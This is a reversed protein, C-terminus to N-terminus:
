KNKRREREAERAQKEREEQERLRQAAQEKAEALATSFGEDQFENDENWVGERTVLTLIALPKEYGTAAVWAALARPPILGARAVFSEGRAINYTDGEFLKEVGALTVATHVNASMGTTAEIGLAKKWKEVGTPSLGGVKTALQMAQEVNLTPEDGEGWLGDMRLLAQNLAGRNLNEDTAKKVAESWAKALRQQDEKSVANMGKTRKSIKAREMQLRRQAERAQEAQVQRQAADMPPKPAGPATGPAGPTAPKADPLAAGADSPPTPSPAKPAAPANAGPGAPAPTVPAAPKPAAPAAPGKEWSVVDEKAVRITGYKLVIAVKEGEEHADGTLTRGDKLKLTDAAATAPRLVVLFGMVM